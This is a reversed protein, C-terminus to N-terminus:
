EGQESMAQVLLDFDDPPEVVIDHDILGARELAEYCSDVFVEYHQVCFYLPAEPSPFAIKNEPPIPCPQNWVLGGIRDERIVIRGAFCNM